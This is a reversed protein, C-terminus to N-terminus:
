WLIVQNKQELESEASYSIYAKRKIIQAIKL